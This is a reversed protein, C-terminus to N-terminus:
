ENILVISGLLFAASAVIFAISFEFLNSSFYFLLFIELILFIFLYKYNRIKNISLKHLLILNTLSLVSTGIGLYFLISISEYIFKGSFILIVLGSAFYFMALAIAVLISVFILANLFVNESKKKDKFNESSLPFMAKSIPLTGWFIAKSLVSAIAYFGAIEEPFVIKAIIIDISYFVVIILTIFFTPKAYDYIGKTKSKREEEKIMKGLQFFSLLFAVFVGILAGIIAGYVRWGLFVLAVALLLKLGSELVMNTGLALFKKRGQMVGRTIPSLFASFIFIGTLFLLFYNIRLLFSLPVALILYTIFLGLSVFGSKKLAKKMINKLRGKDDERSSYKTMITQISETFVALMYIMSFLTAFIGYDVISLMRAMSLQFVFNLFNFIGFSILLVLSGKWLLKDLEV